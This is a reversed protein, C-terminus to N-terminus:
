WTIINAGTPPEGGYDLWIASPNAVSSNIAWSKGQRVAQWAVHGDLFSVNQGAADNGNSGVHNPTQNWFSLMTDMYHYYAFDIMLFQESPLLKKLPYQTPNVESVVPYYSQMATPSTPFTTWLWGNRNNPSLSFPGRAGDGMLYWYSVTAGTSNNDWEKIYREQGPCNILKTPINFEDRLKAHPGVTAPDNYGVRIMNLRNFSGFAFSKYVQDYALSGITFQRLQSACSIRRSLDKAQSLAPMLMAVLVGIISIVVLLEVLTFGCRRHITRSLTM